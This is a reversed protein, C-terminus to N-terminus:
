CAGLTGGVGPTFHGLLSLNYCCSCSKESLSNLGTPTDAFGLYRNMSSKVCRKSCSALESHLSRERGVSLVFTGNYETSGNLQLASCGATNRGCNCEGRDKPGSSLGSARTNRPNQKLRYRKRRAVAADTAEYAKRGCEKSCYKKRRLSSINEKCQVCKGMWLDRALKKEM